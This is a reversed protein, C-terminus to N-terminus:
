ITMVSGFRALYAEHEKYKPDYMGVKRWFSRDHNLHLIHCLEHIVVYDIVEVPAMSLKYNFTLEKLGNCTGWAHPSHIVKISKAKVGIITEFHKVRKKVIKKTSQNYFKELADQIQTTEEPITELLESLKKAKGLHLFNEEEHYQKERAIFKRNELRRQFEVLVKENSQMFKIIDLEKAGSPAKVTIHGEPTAELLFKKRKSYQVNFVITQDQLIIQM